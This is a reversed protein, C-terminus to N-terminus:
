VVDECIYYQDHQKFYEARFDGRSLGYKYKGFDQYALIVNLPIPGGLDDWIVGSGKVQTGALSEKKDSKVQLPGDRGKGIVGKWKWDIPDGQLPPYAEGRRNNCAKCVIDVDLPKTYDRHEYCEAQGGCDVCVMEESIAPIEGHRIAANLAVYADFRIQRTWHM